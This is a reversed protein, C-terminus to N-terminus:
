RSAVGTDHAGLFHGASDLTVVFGDVEGTASLSSKSRRPDFDTRGQFLGTLTVKGHSDVSISTVTDSAGAGGIDHAWLLHGKSNLKLVYVDQQGLATLTATSSSGLKVKGQFSGTVYTNGTADTAIALGSTAQTGGLNHAWLLVGQSSYKAVFANSASSHVSGKPASHVPSSTRTSSLFSGTVFVNGSSDTSVPHAAIVTARPAGLVAKLGSLAFGSPTPSPQSTSPDGLKVLYSANSGNPDSSLITTGPGPDFNGTGNFSSTLYVAGSSDVAIGPGPSADFANTSGAGLHDAWVLHGNADLQLVYPTYTSATFTQSGSSPDFSATGLFIGTTYVNGAGDVTIGKGQAYDAGSGLDDAWVFQGNTDLKSVFANEGEYSGLQGPAADSSFSTLTFASNTPDFNGTGHFYGTTYVNGASDVAIATAYTYDSGDGLSEAWVFQGNADLRSVYASASGSSVLLATGSGPDFNGSGQWFSGTTYVNDAGDLAIGTGFSNVGTGLQDAWVLQGNADLRAVFANGFGGVSTLVTTGSGPDFSGSGQFSGTLFANGLPDVAIAQAQTSDTGAGLQDAWLLQGAASLKTVFANMCPGDVNPNNSIGSTLATTGSGPDFNVTGSFWGTVYVEGASDLAVGIGEARGDNGGLDDAWVLLGASTYEAVFADVAGQSSLTAGAGFSATGEFHGTIFVNGSSDLAVAQAEVSSSPANLIAQAYILDGAPALRDELREV